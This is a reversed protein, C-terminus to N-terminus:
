LNMMARRMEDLGEGAERAMVRVVADEDTSAIYSLTTKVRRLFAESFISRGFSSDYAQKTTERILLALFHLAARRLPPFKPNASTPESDMTPPPSESTEQLTSRPKASVTEIQLLDVMADALDVVYPLVALPSTSECEGILSLASTRLTTPAHRTRVINFLPPLLIDVYIGLADGCRRIVAGLAEGVRVRVDLDRQSLTTVGLDDLGDAYEKILGSLVDKGYTDVMAALGQVANLFIYSDDDQVSQLFISLIAPVLARDKLVPAKSDKRSLPTVLQRLLLLGHARVPLIPDQLLKLAKQYIDQATEEEEGRPKTGLSSTSALRATMVMRAERALPGVSPSGDRALPELLAFIDNLVPATRASLSPNAELISLLLNVSTEIMENDPNIIESGPTDDDSDGEDALDEDPAEYIRLQDLTSTARQGTRSPTATPELVHKIFSLLHMPKNLINSSSKGESLHIQMQMTIQLYLLTRLPNEDKAKSSHYAELLRVFLESSIDARDIEKLFRVFHGPDPYLDLINADVEIDSLANERLDEPTLLSLRSAHDSQKVKHIQGELDVKWVGEESSLISWLAEIGESTGVIKAWTIMIGRLSEKLNPDTTKIKEMHYLLSYLTSVIPTLLSSILEPSPDTNSVLIILTSLATSVSRHSFDSASSSVEANVDEETALLFPGHLLSFIIRSTLAQHPFSGDALLMRAITYAGARKYTSPMQPSLLDIVRPIITAFYDPPKMSAPVTILIRAIHQLKEIPADDISAEDEGFVATCLGRVGQPRLLQQGLLSTCSKRVHLCPAPVSSLVGGLATIAQSPSLLTLFRMTLPRAVDLTPRTTSSLSRPLWGLTLCPRLLDTAHLQLITTTILTQAIKGHVGGPFVLNLLNCTISSLLKYDEPTTTLDIIRPVGETSANCPLTLVVKALLPEVGWKFVISLLTRIQALDRTGILPATHPQANAAPTGEEEDDAGIIHQVRAVVALAENATVLQIEELTSVDSVDGSGLRTYYRTLRDVLVSKLDASAVSRSPDVLCAGDALATALDAM